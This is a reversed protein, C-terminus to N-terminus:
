AIAESTILDALRSLGKATVRVQDRIRERGEADIIINAKHELLGSQIREQYGIWSVSGARKYIWGNCSMWNIFDKPRMQLEKAADTLCLSGDATAIRDLARAKPAAIALAKEAEVRKEESEIAMRLIDIRSLAAPDFAPRAELEQWRDVIRATFEPCLQAVVILSDRKILLYVREVVGNASKQGDGMPPQSIVGREVLREISQKVKDHRSEVLEAIERSTM